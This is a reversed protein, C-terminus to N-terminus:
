AYVIPGCDVFSFDGIRFKKETIAQALQRSEIFEDTVVVLFQKNGQNVLYFEKGLNNVGNILDPIGFALLIGLGIDIVKEGKTPVQSGILTRIEADPYKERVIKDKKVKKRGKDYLSLDIAERIVAVDLTNGDDLLYDISVGLLKSLLRLNEVDPLGNDSEWKSIAQRSVGLKVALQEQTLGSNKRATKLKEGLTM